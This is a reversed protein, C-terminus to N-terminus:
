VGNAVTVMLKLWQCNIFWQSSTHDNRDALVTVPELYGDRLM